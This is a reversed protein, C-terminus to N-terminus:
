ETASENIKNIAEHVKQLGKNVDGAVLFEDIELLLNKIEQLLEM